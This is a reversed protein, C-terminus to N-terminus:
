GGCGGGGCGGGSGGCSSGCSSGSGSSTGDSNYGNRNGIASFPAFVSTLFAAASLSSIATIGDTAFRSIHLGSQQIDPDHKEKYLEKITDYLVLKRNFCAYVLLTAIVTCVLEAILFGIPKEHLSGQGIRIFCVLYLAITLIIALPRSRSAYRKLALLSPHIFDDNDYWCEQIHSYTVTAGDKEKEFGIMLPNQEDPDPIYYQQQILFSAEGEPTLLRREILDVIGTQIARHEGSIYAAIQFATIDNPFWFITNLEVQERKYKLYRSLALLICTVYIAFFALFEPGNLHYPIPQQFALASFAFPFLLYATFAVIMKTSWRFPPDKILPLKKGPPPWIDTPPPAGFIHGYLLLTDKYWQIHRKDESTGGASPYHHIDKGLLNRCLNIWYSQTYTLHLHWVEDVIRPPAAGTPSVCCLLLFKKYESIARETFAPTWNQSTALKQAFSDTAIGDDFTFHRLKNWLTQYTQLMPEVSVKAIYILAIKQYRNM